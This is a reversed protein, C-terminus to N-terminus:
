LARFFKSARSIIYRKIQNQHETKTAFVSWFRWAWNFIYFTQNSSHLKSLNSPYSKTVLWNWLVQLQIRNGKWNTAINAPLTSHSNQWVQPESATLSTSLVHCLNRKTSHELRTNSLHHQVLAPVLAPHPIWNLHSNLPFEPSRLHLKGVLLCLPSSSLSIKHQGKGCCLDRKNYPLEILCTENKSDSHAPNVYSTGYIRTFNGWYASWFQKSKQTDDQVNHATGLSGPSNWLFYILM